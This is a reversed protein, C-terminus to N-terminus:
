HANQPFQNFIFMKSRHDFNHCKANRCRTPVPFLYLVLFILLVDEAIVTRLQGDPLHILVVLCLVHANGLILSSLLIRGDVEFDKTLVTPTLAM